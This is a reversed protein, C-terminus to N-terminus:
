NNIEAFITEIDNHIKDGIMFSKRIIREKVIFGLPKNIKVGNLIKESFINDKDYILIDQMKFYKVLGMISPNPLNEIILAIKKKNKGAITKVFKEVCVFCIKAPIYLLIFESAKKSIESDNILLGLESLSIGEAKIKVVVLLEKMKRTENEEQTKSKYFYWNTVNRYQSIAILILAITSLIFLKNKYKRKNM